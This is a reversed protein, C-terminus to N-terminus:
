KKLEAKITKSSNIMCRMSDNIIKSFSNIITQSIKIIKQKSNEDNGAKSFKILMDKEDNISKTFKDLAKLVKDQVINNSTYDMIHLVENKNLEKIQKTVRFNSIIDDEMENISEYGILHEMITKSDDDKIDKFHIVSFMIDNIKDIVATTNMYTIERECSKLKDMHNNTLIFHKTGKPENSYKIQSEYKNKENTDSNSTSNNNSSGGSSKNFFGAVWDKLKRLWELIKSFFAKIGNIISEGIGENLVSTDENNFEAYELEIEKKFINQNDVLVSEMINMLELRPNFDEDFQKINNRDLLQSYQSM